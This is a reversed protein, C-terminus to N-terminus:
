AFNHSSVLNLAVCRADSVTPAKWTYDMVKIPQCENDECPEEDNSFGEWGKGVDMTRTAPPEVDM